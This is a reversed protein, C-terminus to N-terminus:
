HWVEQPSNHIERAHETNIYMNWINQVHNNKKLFNGQHYASGVCLKSIATSESLTKRHDVVSTPDDTLTNNTHTRGASDKSHEFTRNEKLPCRDNIHIKVVAQSRQSERLSLFGIFSAAQVEADLILDGRKLPNLKM